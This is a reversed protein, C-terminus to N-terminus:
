ALKHTYIHVIIIHSLIIHTSLPLGDEGALTTPLESLSDGRDKDDGESEEDSFEETTSQRGIDALKVPNVPEDLGTQGPSLVQILGSEDWDTNFIIPEGEEDLDSSTEDDESSESVGSM